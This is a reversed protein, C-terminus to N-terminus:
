SFSEHHTDVNKIYMYSSIFNWSSGVFSLSKELLGRNYFDGVKTVDHRVNCFHAIKIIPTWQFIEWKKDSGVSIKSRTIYFVNVFIMFTEALFLLYYFLLRWFARSLGKHFSCYYIDTAPFMGAFYSIITIELKREYFFSKKFIHKCSFVILLLVIFYIHNNQWEKKWPLYATPTCM